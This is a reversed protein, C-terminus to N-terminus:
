CPPFPVSCETAGISSEAEAPRAQQRYILALNHRATLSINKGNHSPCEPKNPAEDRPRGNDRLILQNAALCIAEGVATAGM